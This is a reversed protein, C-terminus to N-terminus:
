IKCKKYQSTNRRGVVLVSPNTVGLGQTETNNVHLPIIKGGKQLSIKALSM